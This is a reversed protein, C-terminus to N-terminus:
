HVFSSEEYRFVSCFLTSYEVDSLILWLSACVFRIYESHAHAAEAEEAETAQWLGHDENEGVEGYVGEVSSADADADTKESAKARGDEVFSREDVTAMLVEGGDEKRTQQTSVGDGVTREKHGNTSVTTAVVAKAAAEAVAEAAAAAAAKEEELARVEEGM